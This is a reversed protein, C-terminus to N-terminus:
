LPLPDISACSCCKYLDCHSRTVEGGKLLQLVDELDQTALSVGDGKLPHGVGALDVVDHFERGGDM